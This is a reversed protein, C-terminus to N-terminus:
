KAEGTVSSFCVRSSTTGWVVHSLTRSRLQPSEDWCAAETVATEGAGALMHQITGVVRQAETKGATFHLHQVPTGAEAGLVM